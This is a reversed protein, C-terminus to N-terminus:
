GANIWQVRSTIITTICQKSAKNAVGAICHQLVIMPSNKKVGIAEGLLMMQIGSTYKCRPKHELSVKPKRFTSDHDTTEVQFIPAKLQM